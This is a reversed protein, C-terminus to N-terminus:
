RGPPQTGPPCVPAVGAVSFNDFDVAVPQGGFASNDGPGGDAGVAITAPEDMRGSTLVQWGGNHFFYATVLGNRRAIRLTGTPDDVSVSASRGTGTFSGYLEDGAPASWRWAQWGINTPGFFAWLVVRVGNAPPWQSLSFEVRADFDGPLKCQTAVHGGFVNYQGGPAAEATFNFELRGGRQALTWGSGQYIQNWITGDLRSGDFPDSITLMKPPATVRVRDRPPQTRRTTTPHVTSTPPPPAATVVRTTARKVVHGAHHAPRARSRSRRPTQTSTQRLKRVTRRDRTAVVHTQRPPAASHGETDFLAALGAGAVGVAALAAAVLVVRLRSRAPRPRPVADADVPGGPMPALGPDHRLIARELDRLAPGPELGLEEDLIRRTERYAELADAQRGRRYLALVQQGRLRERFPHEAVLAALESVVEATTGCELEADIRDELACLRLEELAAAETTAFPADLGDLADGRWIADAERLLRARDAPAATAGADALLSRFRDLDLEGPEVHLEYGRGTTTIREGIVKRLRSVQTQVVGVGGRPPEVWLQDLLREASVTEKTHLLLYTLLARQREGGLRLSQGGSSAEIPGLIRFEM